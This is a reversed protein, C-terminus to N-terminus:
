TVFARGAADNDLEDVGIFRVGRQRYDARPLM